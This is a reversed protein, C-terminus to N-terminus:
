LGYWSVSLWNGARMVEWWNLTKPDEGRHVAEDQAKYLYELAGRVNFYNWGSSLRDLDELMFLLDRQKAKQLLVTGCICLSILNSGPLQTRIGWRPKALYLIEDATVQVFSEEENTLSARQGPWLSTRVYIQIWRITYQTSDWSSRIELPLAVYSEDYIDKPLLPYQRFFDNLKRSLDMIEIQAQRVIKADQCENWENTAQALDRCIRHIWACRVASSQMVPHLTGISASAHEIKVFAAEIMVVASQEAAHLFEVM